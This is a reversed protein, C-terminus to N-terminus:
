LTVLGFMVKSLMRELKSNRRQLRANVKADIEAIRRTERLKKLIPTCHRCQPLSIDIETM